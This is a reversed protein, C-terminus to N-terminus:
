FDGDKELPLTEKDGGVAEFRDEPPSAGEDDDKLDHPSADADGQEVCFARSGPFGDPFDPHRPFEAMRDPGGLKTATGNLQETIYGHQHERLSRDPCQVEAPLLLEANTEDESKTNQLNDKLEAVVM